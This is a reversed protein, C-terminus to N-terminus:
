SRLEKRRRRRVAAGLGALGAALLSATAPEPVLTIPFTNGATMTVGQFDVLLSTSTIEIDSATMGMPFAVVEYGTIPFGLDLSTLVVCNCPESGSGTAYTTSSQSTFTVSSANVDVYIGGLLVEDSDDAAVVITDSDHVTSRDPYYLRADVTDGILTAGAPAALLLLVALPYLITKM